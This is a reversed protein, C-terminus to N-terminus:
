NEESPILNIGSSIMTCISYNLAWAVCIWALYPLLLIGAIYDVSWFAWITFVVAPVLATLVYLAKQPNKAGFFVPTWIINLFLQVAFLILAIGDRDLNYVMAAAVGMLSYLVTWVPGFVAAPPTWSPKPINAYWARDVGVALAVGTGLVLPSAGIVYEM